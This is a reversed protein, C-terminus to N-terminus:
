EYFASVKSVYDIHDNQSDDDDDSATDLVQTIQEYLAADNVPWNSFVKKHAIYSIDSDFCLLNTIFQKSSQACEFCYFPRTPVKHNSHQAVDLMTLRYM